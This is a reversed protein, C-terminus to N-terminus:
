EGKVRRPFAALLVGVSDELNNLKIRFEEDVKSLKETYTDVPEAVKTLFTSHVIQVEGRDNAVTVGGMEGENLVLRREDNAWRNSTVEEGFKFTM